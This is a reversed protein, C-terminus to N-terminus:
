DNNYGFINGKRLFVQRAGSPNCNQILIYFDRIFNRVIKRFNVKICISTDLSKLMFHFVFKQIFKNREDFLHFAMKKKQTCIKRFYKKMSLLFLFIWNPASIQVYKLKLPLGCM